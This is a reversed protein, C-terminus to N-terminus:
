SWDGITVPNVVTTRHTPPQALINQRQQKAERIITEMQCIFQQLARVEDDYFQRDKSNHVMESLALAREGAERFSMTGFTNDRADEWCINGREAWLRLPPGNGFLPKLQALGHQGAFLIHQQENKPTVITSDLPVTV